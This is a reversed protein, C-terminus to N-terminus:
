RPRVPPEGGGRPRGDARVRLRRPVGGGRVLRRLLRWDRIRVEAEPGQSGFNLRAGDPTTVILRGEGIGELASFFRTQLARSAITM